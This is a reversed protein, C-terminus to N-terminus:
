LCVSCRAITDSGGAYWIWQYGPLDAALLFINNGFNFNLQLSGHNAGSAYWEGWECLEVCEECRGVRGEGVGVWRGGGQCQVRRLHYHGDLRHRRRGEGEGRITYARRLHDHVGEDLRHRRDEVDEDDTEDEPEDEADHAHLQEVAAELVAGVALAQEDGVRVDGALRRAEPGGVLVVRPRVRRHVKVVHEDGIEGEELHHTPRSPASSAPHSTTYRATKCTTLPARPRM